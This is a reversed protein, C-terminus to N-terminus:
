RRSIGAVLIHDKISEWNALKINILNKIIIKQNLQYHYASLISICKM